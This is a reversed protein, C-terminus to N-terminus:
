AARSARGSADEWAADPARLVVFPLFAAYYLANPAIRLVLAWELGALILVDCLVWLSYQAIEFSAISLVWRRVPAQVVGLLRAPYVVFRAVLAVVLFMVEYALFTYRSTAGIAPVARRLIETAVPVLFAVGVATWLGARGLRGRAYREALVFFRLDGLIVFVVGAIWARDAPVRSFAGTAWADALIAVLFIVFWGVLFRQRRAFAIATIVGALWAIGPHQLASEYIAQPTM